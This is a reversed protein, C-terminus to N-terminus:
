SLANQGIVGLTADDLLLAPAVIVWIEGVLEVTSEGSKYKRKAESSM